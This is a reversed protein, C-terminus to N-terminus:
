RRIRQAVADVLNAWTPMAESARRILAPDSAARQLLKDRQLVNKKVSTDGLAQLLTELNRDPFCIALREADHAGIRERCRAEMQAAWADYAPDAVLKRAGGGLLEHLKDSDLVAIVHLATNWAHCGPGLDRLVGGNGNCSRGKIRKSRFLEFRNEQLRDAVCAVLFAHPGFRDISTEAHNEWLVFVTM